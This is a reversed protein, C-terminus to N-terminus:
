ALSEAADVLSVMDEYKTGPSRAIAPVPTPTVAFPYGLADHIAEILTREEEARLAREAVFRAEVTERTHQVIQLQRISADSFRMVPFSPWYRRGDPLVFMNRSRGLIRKLVPLGRGCACPAGVEAYDSLVYRILPTAFNHLSTVVVRGISGPACPRGADDLIEVLLHESQLHYHEHEPCQLAIYGVEEASYTDTVAVDWTERCLARLDHPLTEGFSRVQRLRPLKVGRRRSLQALERLNTPHSLLYDPNHKRLWELQDAPDTRINLVACPGTVFIADTAPGWGPHEGANVRSRIACLKGSFDRRHWLHERLTQALWFMTDLQTGYVRLPEGSSGSTKHEVRQGHGPPLTQSMLATGQMQIDRRTLLPLRRFAESDIERGPDIGAASLRDRYFPVTRAAHALLERLQLFQKAELRESSWWQSADFQYQLALLSAAEPSLVGPWAVGPIASKLEYNPAPEMHRHLIALSEGPDTLPGLPDAAGHIVLTPATIACLWRRREGAAIVALL